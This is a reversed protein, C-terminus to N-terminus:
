ATAGQALDAAAIAAHMQQWQALSLRVTGTLLFSTEGSDAMWSLAIAVLRRSAKHLTEDLIVTVHDPSADTIEIHSRSTM